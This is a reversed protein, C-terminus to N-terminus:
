AIRVGNYVLNEFSFGQEFSLDWAFYKRSVWVQSSPSISKPLGHIVFYGFYGIVFFNWLVFNWFLATIKASLLKDPDRSAKTM